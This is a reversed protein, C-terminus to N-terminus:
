GLPDGFLVSRGGAIHSFEVSRGTYPAHIIFNDVGLWLSVHGPYYILDGAQAATRDVRAVTNIQSRSQRPLTVGQQAWAWTTLGSCDFSTGPNSSNRHYPTGLQTMAAMLVVQHQQDAARWAARMAAADAGVRRAAEGALADRIQNFQRLALRDGTTAWSVWANMGTDAYAALSDRGIAAYSPAYGTGTQSTSPAAGATAPLALAGLSVAAATTAITVYRRLTM